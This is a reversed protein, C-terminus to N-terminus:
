RWGHMDMRYEMDAEQFGMHGVRKWAADHLGRQGDLHVPKRLKLDMRDEIRSEIASLKLVEDIPHDVIRGLVIAWITVTWCYFKSGVSRHRNQGTRCYPTPIVLQVAMARKMRDTQKM